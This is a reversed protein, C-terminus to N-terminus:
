LWEQNLAQLVLLVCVFLLYAGLLYCCVLCLYPEPALQLMLLDSCLAQHACLPKVNL